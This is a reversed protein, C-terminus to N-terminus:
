FRYEFRARVTRPVGPHVVRDATPSSENQLRSVYYYEIDNWKVDALNFVEVGLRWNSREYGFQADLTTYAPSTVSNDEVLPSSGFHRARLTGFFGSPHRASLAADVVNTPSNPIYRGVIGINELCPHGVAADGCGLDDPSSNSDFRARTLSGNLEARLWDNIAYTNAWEIGTRTSSGNPSTVGADGDFVLESRLKLKFLDLRSQWKPTIHTSLGIEASLARTLPTAKSNLEADSRSVGRADNSHYGEGANVYVTTEGWPGLVIGLKPSVIHARRSGDVCGEPDSAGSCTGDPNRMKDRASFDFLDERIGFVTRVHPSLQLRSEAYLAGTSERVGADQTTGIIERDVTPFIGV